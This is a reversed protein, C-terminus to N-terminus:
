ASFQMPAAPELERMVFDLPSREPQALVPMKDDWMMANDPALLAGWRRTAHQHCGCGDDNARHRFPKLHKLEALIQDTGETPQSSTM